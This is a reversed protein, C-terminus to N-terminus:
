TAARRACLRASASERQRMGNCGLTPEHTPPGERSRRRVPIHAASGWPHDEPTDRSPGGVRSGVVARCQVAASPIRTLEAPSRRRASDGRRAGVDRGHRRSRHGCRRHKRDCAGRRRRPPRRATARPQHRPRRHAALPRPIPRAATGWFYMVVIEFRSLGRLSIRKLHNPDQGNPAHMQPSPLPRSAATLFELM